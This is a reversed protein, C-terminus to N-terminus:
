SIGVIVCLASSVCNDALIAKSSRPRAKVSRLRLFGASQQAISNDANEILHPRFVTGASGWRRWGGGAAFNEVFFDLPERRLVVSLARELALRQTHHHIDSFHAPQHVFLCSGRNGHRQQDHQNEPEATMKM